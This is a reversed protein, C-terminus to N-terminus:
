FNELTCKKRNTQAGPNPLALNDKSTFRNSEPLSSERQFKKPKTGNLHVSVEKVFAKKHSDKTMYGKHSLIVDEKRHTVIPSKENLRKRLSEKQTKDGVCSLYQWLVKLGRLITRM